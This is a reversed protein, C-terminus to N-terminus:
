RHIEVLLVWADGVAVLFSLVVGVVLLYLGGLEWGMVGIGAAVIPLTALQCLVVRPVFHWRFAPELSRWNRLVLVQITVVAAWDVVGVALLEAGALVMRQDPVLLLITAILVAVLLVLAELARGALGYTPNSMITDLNISVGVFVLGALVAAAGAAALFFDHWEEVRQAGETRTGVFSTYACRACSHAAEDVSSKKRSSKAGSDV